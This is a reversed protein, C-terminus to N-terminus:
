MNHNQLLLHRLFAHSMCPLYQLAADDVSSSSSSAIRSASLLGAIVFGVCLVDPSVGDAKRFTSRLVAVDIDFIDEVGGSRIPVRM